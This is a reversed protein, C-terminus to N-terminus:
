LSHDFGSEITDDVRLRVFVSNVTIMVGGSLFMPLGSDALVSLVLAAPKRGVREFLGIQQPTISSAYELLL